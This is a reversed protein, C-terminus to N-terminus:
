RQCRQSMLDIESMPLTSSRWAEAATPAASVIRNRSPSSVSAEAELTNEGERFDFVGLKAHLWYLEPSYGDIISDVATGNISLKQRGYEPSMCLNLEISYRGAEPVKFRVRM